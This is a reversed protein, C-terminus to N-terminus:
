ATNAVSARAADAGTFPRWHGELLLEFPGFRVKYDMKSSQAIWYGLYVHRLQLERAQEILWLM